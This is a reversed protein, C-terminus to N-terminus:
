LHNGWSLPVYTVTAVAVGVVAARLYFFSHDKSAGVLYVPLPGQKGKIADQIKDNYRTRTDYGQIKDKCRIRTDCGQIQEAVVTVEADHCFEDCVPMYMM